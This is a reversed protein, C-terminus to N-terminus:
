DCDLPDVGLDAVDRGAVGLAEVGAPPKEILPAADAQAVAPVVPNAPGVFLGGGVRKSRRCDVVGTLGADGISRSAWVKSPGLFRLRPCLRHGFSAPHDTARDDRLLPGQKKFRFTYM